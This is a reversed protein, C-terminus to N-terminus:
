EKLDTIGLVLFLVGIMIVFWVVGGKVFEWAATGFNWFGWEYSFGWVLVSVLILILGILIELWKNM